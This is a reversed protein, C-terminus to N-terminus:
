VGLNYQKVVPASNDRRAFSPQSNPINKQANAKVLERALTMMSNALHELTQDSKNNAGSASDLQNLRTRRDSRQDFISQIGKEEVKYSIPSFGSNRQQHSGASPTVIPTTTTAGRARRNKTSFGPSPKDEPNTPGPNSQRPMSRTRPKATDSDTEAQLDRVIILGNLALAAITGVVPILTALGALIELAAGAVDGQVFRSAALGLALLLGLGPLLKIAVSAAAGAKSGVKALIKGGAKNLAAANGGAKSVKDVLGSVKAMLATIARKNTQILNTVADVTYTKATSYAVQAQRRITQVASSNYLASANQQIYGAGASLGRGIAGVASKGVDLIRGAVSRTTQTAAAAGRTAINGAAKAGSRVAQRTRTAASTAGSVISKGVSTAKNILSAALKGSQSIVSSVGKGIAAPIRGVSSVLRAVTGRLGGIVGPLSTLRGLIGRLGLLGATAGAVRGLVGKLGGFGSALGGLIRSALSRKGAGVEDANKVTVLGGDRKFIRVLSSLNNSSETQVSLADESQERLRLDNIQSSGGRGLRRREGLPGNINGMPGFQTQWQTDNEAARYVRNMRRRNGMNRAIRAAGRGVRTPATAVNYTAKATKATLGAIGSLAQLTNNFPSLDIVKGIDGYVSKVSNATASGIKKAIDTALSRQKREDQEKLRKQREIEAQVLPHQSNRERSNESSPANSRRRGYQNIIVTSPNAGSTQPAGRVSSQPGNGSNRISSVIKATSTKQAKVLSSTQKGIADNFQNAARNRRNGTGAETPGKAPDTSGRAPNADPAANRFTGFKKRQPNPRIPAM